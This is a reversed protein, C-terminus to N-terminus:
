VGETNKAESTGAAGAPINSNHSLSLSRHLQSHANRRDNQRQACTFYLYLNYLVFLFYM